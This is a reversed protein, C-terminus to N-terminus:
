HNKCTSPVEMLEASLETLTSLSPLRELWQVFLVKTNVNSSIAKEFLTLEDEHIGLCSGLWIWKNPTLAFIKQLAGNIAM